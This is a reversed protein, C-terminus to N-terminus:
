PGVEDILAFFLLFAVTTCLVALVLVAGVVRASPWRDPLQALGAPLYGLGTLAVSAAVVGLRPAGSRHRPRGDPGVGYGMAGVAVTIMLYPAGWIGAMVIFLLWGRRSM